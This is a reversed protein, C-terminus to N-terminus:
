TRMAPDGYGAFQRHVDAMEADTLLAPTGVQLARWYQACLSEVEIALAMAAQMTGGCAIMGHNALLCAKREQMAELVADTLAQTGFLHYRACRITNGGAMAIMYHFPPIEKRLCAMSTAYPSHAHVVAGIDARAAYLDRHFRWESSPKGPGQPQGDLSMDVMDEPRLRDPGVGSPTICFGSETRVSVNGSANVNLGLRLLELTADLLSQRTGEASRM